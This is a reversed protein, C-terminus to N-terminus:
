GRAAARRLRPVYRGIAAAVVFWAVRAEARGFAVMWSEGVALGFERAGAGYRGVRLRGGPCAGDTAAPFGDFASGVSM